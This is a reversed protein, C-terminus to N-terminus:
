RAYVVHDRRGRTQGLPACALWGSVPPWAIGRHGGGPPGAHACRSTHAVAARPPRGAVARAAPSWGPWQHGGSAGTAVQRQGHSAVHEGSAAGRGGPHGSARPQRRGCRLAAVLSTTSRRAHGGVPRRVRRPPWRHGCRAISADTARRRGSDRRLSTAGRPRRQAPRIPKLSVSHLDPQRM